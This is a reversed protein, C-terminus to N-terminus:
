KLRNKKGGYLMGYYFTSIVFALNISVNSLFWYIKYETSQSHMKLYDNHHRTTLIAGYTTSMMCLLIGWDTMYIWWIGFANRSLARHWSFAVTAIFYAALIWRFILFKLSKAESQWQSQVFIEPQNHNFSKNFNTQLKM